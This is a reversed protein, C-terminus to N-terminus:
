SENQLLNALAKKLDQFSSIEKNQAKEKFKEMKSQVEIREKAQQYLATLFASYEECSTMKMFHEEIEELSVFTKNESELQKIKEKMEGSEERLRKMEKLYHDKYKERVSNLREIMQDVEHDISQYQAELNKEYSSSVNSNLIDQAILSDSYYQLLEKITVLKHDNSQKFCAGDIICKICVFDMSGTTTNIYLADIMFNPHFQCKFIDFPNQKGEPSENEASTEIFDSM